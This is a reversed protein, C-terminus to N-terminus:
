DVESPQCTGWEGEASTICNKSCCELGIVGHCASRLAKCNEAAGVPEPASAVSVFVITSMALLWLKRKIM